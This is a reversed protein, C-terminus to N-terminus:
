NGFMMRTHVYLKDSAERLKKDALHMHHYSVNNFQSSLEPLGQCWSPLHGITKDIKQQVGQFIHNAIGIMKNSSSIRGSALQDNIQSRLVYLKVAWPEGLIAGEPSQKYAIGIHKINHAFDILVDVSLCVKSWAEQLYDYRPLEKNIEVRKIETDFPAFKSLIDDLDNHLEKWEWLTNHYIQFQEMTIRLQKPKPNKRLFKNLILSLDASTLGYKNIINAIDGGNIEVNGDV